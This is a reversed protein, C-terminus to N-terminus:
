PVSRAAARRTAPTDGALEALLSQLESRSVGIDHLMRDDLTQLERLAARRRRSRQWAAATGRLAAVVALVFRQLATPAQRTQVTRLSANM